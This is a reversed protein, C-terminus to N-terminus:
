RGAEYGAEWPRKPPSVPRKLWAVYLYPAGPRPEMTVCVLEWGEAGLENCRASLKQPHDGHQVMAEWASM